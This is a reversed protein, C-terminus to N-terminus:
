MDLDRRIVFDILNQYKRRRIEQEEYSYRQLIPLRLNKNNCVFIKADSSNKKFIDDNLKDSSIYQFENQKLIKYLSIDQAPYKLKKRLLTLLDVYKSKKKM